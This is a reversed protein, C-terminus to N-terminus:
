LIAEVIGREVVRAKLMKKTKAVYVTIIQGTQGASRAIATAELTVGEVQLRLLVEEGSKVGPIAPKKPAQFEYQLRRQAKGDVMAVVTVTASTLGIRPEGEIKLELDGAPAETPSPKHRLAYADAEDGLAAKLADRAIQEARDTEIKKSLRAVIVKDPMNLAATLSAQRLRMEVHSKLLTRKLGPLPSAGLEIASVKDVLLSDGSVVAVEGLKMREGSVEITAPIDIVVGKQQAGAIAGLALMALLTKM